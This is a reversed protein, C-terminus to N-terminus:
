RESLRASAILSATRGGTWSSVVGRPLNCQSIGTLYARMCDFSVALYKQAKQEPM